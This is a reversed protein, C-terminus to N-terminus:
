LKEMKKNKSKLPLEIHFTTGKGIKSDVELTGGLKHVLSSTISLGLGTGGEKKKTSYFPEFIRDLNEQSIGCGNDAIIISIFTSNQGEVKINLIGGQNMAAFANNVLNLFIQQLKGMDSEIVPVDSGVDVNITIGRYESEKNFLGLVEDLLEKVNVSEISVDMHRAFSLLRKTITGCREVAKLIWGVLGLLKEDKAYMGKLVFMDQILGAKENIISLPNNIEHAVGAALRGISAMKNEYELKHMAALRKDDALHIKNILHTIVSFIVIIVAMISMSLFTLLTKRTSYWPSMLDDKPKVVLLIFPTNEIYAYGVMLQEGDDTTVDKVQTKASYEPVPLTMREMVKGYYRSETQLIGNRNIIFASGRGTLQFDTLVNNFRVTDVTARLVYVSGDQLEHSVAIVLHPVQRFGLFVDSVYVGHLLVEKFWQQGSYDMGKLKFPGAYAIQIGASNIVGLDTFGEQFTVQLDELYKYLQFPKSLDEFSSSRVIFKLASRHKTLFFTVSRRTNSVVRATRQFLEGEMSAKTVMFDFIGACLVPVLAFTVSFGVALKWMRRYDFLHKFLGTGPEKRDWFHPKLSRLSIM